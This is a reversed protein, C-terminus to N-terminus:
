GRRVAPRRAGLTYWDVYRGCARRLPVLRRSADTSVLSLEFVGIHQSNAGLPLDPASTELTLPGGAHRVTAVRWRNGIRDLTAAFPVTSGAARLRGDRLGLYDMSVEYTGPAARATWREAAGPPLAVVDRQGGAPRAVIPEPAVRAWGTRRALRRGAATACDLRAGSASGEGALVLRDPTPGRRRWLDYFRGRRELRFNPPPESSNASRAAVVFDAVDLVVPKLADFDNPEDTEVVKEPRLGEGSVGVVPGSLRSRPLEWRAFDDYPIMLVDQDDLLPRMSMLEARRDEPGVRASRLAVFSSAAALAVFAVALAGHALRSEASSTHWTALLARLTFLMAFPSGIALAKAALYPSEDRLRVAAYIGATALAAAPIAMDDRLRWWAAAAITGAIAVAVSLGGRFASHLDHFYTRFDEAPWIGLATLPSISGPLNGLNTAGIAGTASPSIGVARFFSLTRPLEPVILAVGLLVIGGAVAATRPSARLRGLVARAGAAVRPRRGLVVVELLLLALLTAVPWLLGAYSYNYLFGAGLIALLVGGGADLARAALAERLVAVFALLFLSLLTEKFAGQTFYAAGLYPLAVLVAAVARRGTGLGALLTWAAPVALLSILVTLATAAEDVSVGIGESLTAMLAHPGIPYGPPLVFRRDEPAVKLGEAWALHSAMDNNVGVGLIGVNGAVVFPVATLLVAAAFAGAMLASPRRGRLTPLALAAAAIVLVGLIVAGAGAEGPLRVTIGAVAILLALGVAPGYGLWPDRRALRLIAAGVVASAVLTLVAAAYTPWM